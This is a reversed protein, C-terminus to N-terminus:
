SRVHFGAVSFIVSSALPRSSMLSTGYVSSRATNVDRHFHGRWRSGSLATNLPTLPGGRKSSGKPDNSQAELLSSSISTNVKDTLLSYGMMTPKARCQSSSSVGPQLRSKLLSPRQATIGVKTASTRFSGDSDSHFGEMTGHVIRGLSM